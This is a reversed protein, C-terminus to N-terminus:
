HATPKSENRCKECNKIHEIRQIAAIMIYPIKEEIILATVQALTLTQVDIIENGEQLAMGLSVDGGPTDELILTVKAM